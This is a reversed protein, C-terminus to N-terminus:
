RFSKGMNEMNKKGYIKLIKEKTLKQIILRAFLLFILILIGGPLIISGISIVQQKKTLNLTSGVTQTVLNQLKENLRKRIFQKLDYAKLNEIDGLEFMKDIYKEEADLCQKLQMLLM